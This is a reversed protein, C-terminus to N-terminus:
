RDERVLTSGFLLVAGGLWSASTALAELQAAGADYPLLVSFAAIAAVAVACRLGISLVVDSDTFSSAVLTLAVVYFAVPRVPFAASGDLLAAVALALPLSWAAAIALHRAFAAGNSTGARRYRRLREVAPGIAVGVAFLALGALAALGVGAATSRAIGAAAVAFAIAAIGAHWAVLGGIGSRLQACRWQSAVRLTAFGGAGAMMVGGFWWERM